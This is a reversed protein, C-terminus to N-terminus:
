LGLEEKLEKLKKVEVSSIDSKDYITILNVVTDTVSIVATSTIVRAGGSKGKGKSAISMRVKYLGSGLSVGSHPNEQLEELLRCYDNKFSAYKKALPKAANLFKM